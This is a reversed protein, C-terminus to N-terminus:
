IATSEIDFNPSVPTIHAIYRALEKKLENAESNNEALLLEDTQQDMGLQKWCHLIYYLRDSVQTCSFSNCFLLNHREMAAISINNKSYLYLMQRKDVHCNQETLHEILMTAQAKVQAEPFLNYLMTLLAKDIGYLVVSNNKQLINYEVVENDISQFNHYFLTEAYEDEFLDLPVITFRQTAIVIQVSKYKYNLWEVEDIAHKLNATISLSEDVKYIFHTSSESNNEKAKPNLLAFYFGDASFRISLIHQNSNSGTVQM